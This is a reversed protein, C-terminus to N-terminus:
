KRARVALVIFQRLTIAASNCCAFGSADSAFSAAAAATVARAVEVDVKWLGVRVV